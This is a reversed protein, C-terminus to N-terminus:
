PLLEINASVYYCTLCSIAGGMAKPFPGTVMGVAGDQVVKQYLSERGGHDGAKRRPSVTQLLLQRLHEFLHAAGNREAQQQDPEQGSGQKGAARAIGVNAFLLIQLTAVAIEGFALVPFGFDLIGVRNLDIRAEGLGM